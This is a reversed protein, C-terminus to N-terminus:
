TAPGDSLANEGFGQNPVPEGNLRMPSSPASRPHAKWSVFRPGRRENEEVMLKAAKGVTSTLALHPSGEHRMSIRTDPPVGEGALVRAADLLPQRSSKLIVRDGVRATFQGRGLPTVLIETM